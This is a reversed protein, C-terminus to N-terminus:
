CRADPQTWTGVRLESETRMRHVRLLRGRFRSHLDMHITRIAGSLSVDSSISLQAGRKAMWDLLENLNM